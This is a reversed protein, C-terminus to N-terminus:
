GRVWLTAAYAATRDHALMVQSFEVKILANVLVSMVGHGLFVDWKIMQQLKLTGTDFRVFNPV